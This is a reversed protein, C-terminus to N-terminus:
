ETETVHSNGKDREQATDHLTESIQNGDREGILKDLTRLLDDLVREDDEVKNSLYKADEIEKIKGNECIWVNMIQRAKDHALNATKSNIARALMAIQENITM